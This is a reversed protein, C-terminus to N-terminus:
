RAKEKEKSTGPKEIIHGWRPFPRGNRTPKSDGQSAAIM